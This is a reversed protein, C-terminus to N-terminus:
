RPKIVATIDAVTLFFFEVNPNDSFRTSYVGQVHPALILTCGVEIHEFGTPIATAGIKAVIIPKDELLQSRAEATLLIETKNMERKCLIYDGVPEIQFSMVGKQMEKPESKKM